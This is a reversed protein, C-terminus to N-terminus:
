RKRNGFGLPVGVGQILADVVGADQEVVGECVSGDGQVVLM